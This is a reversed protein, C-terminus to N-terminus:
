LGWDEADRQYREVHHTSLRYRHAGGRFIIRDYTDRKEVQDGRRLDGELADPVVDFKEAVVSRLSPGVSDAMCPSEDDGAPYNDQVHEIRAFGCNGLLPFKPYEVSTNIPTTHYSTYIFMWGPTFIINLYGM